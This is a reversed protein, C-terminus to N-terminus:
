NGSNRKKWDEFDKHWSDWFAQLEQERGKFKKKLYSFAKVEIKRVDERQIGYQQAVSLLTRPKHTEFGYRDIFINVDRENFKERLANLIEELM